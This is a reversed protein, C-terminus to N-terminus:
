SWEKKPPVRSAKFCYPCSRGIFPQCNKWALSVIFERKCDRRPCTVLLAATRNGWEIPIREVKFAPLSLAM